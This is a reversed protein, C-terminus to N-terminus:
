CKKRYLKHIRTSDLLPFPFPDRDTTPYPGEVTSLLSTYLYMHVIHVYTLIKYRECRFMSIQSVNVTNYCTDSSTSRVFTLQLVFKLYTYVVRRTTM